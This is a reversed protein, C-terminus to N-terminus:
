VGVHVYPAWILPDRAFVQSLGPMIRSQDRLYRIAFHLGRAALRVEFVGREDSMAGYVKLAVDASHLSTVPWLTGVVSPFGVLQLASSLNISEDLLRGERATASHCASLFAFQPSQIKLSVLDSVTLPASKWDQLLLGSQSPDDSSLVGHCSLHVINQDPLTRMAKERTPHKLITAFVRRPMLKELDELEKEVYPLSKQEPTTPMGLLLANQSHGDWVRAAVERSFPLTKLTPLYSSIVRDIVTNSSNDDHYGAAHIPLLNLPAVAVWWVRPWMDGEQLAKTFQLADLVSGMAVDWLWELVRKVERTSQQYSKLQTSQVAKVFREVYKVLENFTLLPLPLCRIGASTVILADCRIVSTNLVIIPGDEALRKLESESPGRLFREFGPTCRISDILDEFRRSLSHRYEQHVTAFDSKALNSATIPDLQDRLERFQKALDPHATELDSIDSRTDLQLSAMMGRGVELLRLAEYPNEGSELSASAAISALGVYESINFQQDQRSLAHSNLRPLLQVTEKLTTLARRPNDALVQSVLVGARIRVTPSSNPNTAADELTSIAREKHEDLKDILFQSWWCVGATLLHGARDPHDTPLISLAEDITSIAEQLDVEAQSRNFRAKLAISLLLLRNPYDLNDRQTMALAKRSMDIASDLYQLHPDDFIESRWYLMHGYNHLFRPYHNDKKSAGSLITEYVGLADSADEISGGRLVRGELALALNNLRAALRADDKPTFDVAQRAVDVWNDFDDMSGTLGSRHQLALALNNLAAARNAHDIPTLNVAELGFKIANELDDGFATREFRLRFDNSLNTCISARLPTGERASELAMCRLEIAQDLDSIVGTKRFRSLLTVGLNNRLAPTNAGKSSALAEWGVEVAENLDLVSDTMEFRYCLASSLVDLFNLRHPHDNPMTKRAGQLLVLTRDLDTTAGTREFRRLLAMCLGNLCKIKDPNEDPITHVADEAAKIAASLDDVSGTQEYRFTLAVNLDNLYPIRNPDNIPVADIAAQVMNVAKDLDDVQGTERFRMHLASRLGIVFTHRSPHDAPIIAVAQEKIAIARDLLETFGSQEFRRQLTVAIVLLIGAQEASTLVSNRLTSGILSPPMEVLQQIISIDAFEM